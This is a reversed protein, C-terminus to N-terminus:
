SVEEVSFTGNQPRWDGLAKMFGGVAYIDLVEDRNILTPLYSATFEVSWDDFCPRTRMTRNGRKVRVPVRLRFREDEWLEKPDTPGEYQLPAHSGVILGASAEPGRSRTRAANVFVATLAEAPVCPKGQHLWLGGFWEAKSIAQHDAETKPKKLTLKTLNKTIPDLPDALRGAHMILRRTGVLKLKIEEAQM